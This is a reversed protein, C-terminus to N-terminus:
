GIPHRNAAGPALDFPSGDGYQVTATGDQISLLAFVKGFTTRLANKPAQINLYEVAKSKSGNSYTVKFTASSTGSLSVLQIAVPAWTASPATTTPTSSGTSGTTTTGSTSTSGSTSTTGTSGSSGVTAAPPAVYLAKFPDRGIPASVHRPLKVAPPQAAAAPAAHRHHKVTVQQDGNNSSGGGKMLFFAVIGLVLVGVVAGVLMLKRRNDDGAGGSDGLPLVPAPPEALSTGGSNFTQQSM